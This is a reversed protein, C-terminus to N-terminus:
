CNNWQRVAGGGGMGTRPAFAGSPLTHSLEEKTATEGVDLVNGGVYLHEVFTYTAKGPPCLLRLSHLSGQLLLFSPLSQVKVVQLIPVTVRNGTPQPYPHGVAQLLPVPVVGVAQLVLAPLGGASVHTFHSFNLCSNIFHFYLHPRSDWHRWWRGEEQSKRCWILAFGPHGWM